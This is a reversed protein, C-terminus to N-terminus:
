GQQIKLQGPNKNCDIEVPWARCLSDRLYSASQRLFNSRVRDYFAKSASLQDAHPNSSTTKTNLLAAPNSIM